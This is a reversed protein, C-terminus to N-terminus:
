PTERLFTTDDVVPKVAAIEDNIDGELLVALARLVRLRPRLDLPAIATAAEHFARLLKYDDDTMTM